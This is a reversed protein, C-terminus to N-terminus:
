RRRGYLELDSNYESVLRRHEALLLNHSNVQQNFSDVANQDYQNLARRQAEIYASSTQIQSELQELRQKKANFQATMNHPIYYTNGSGTTSSPTPEQPTQYNPAPTTSRYPTPRPAPSPSDNKNIIAVVFCIAILTLFPHRLAFLLPQTVYRWPSPRSSKIHALDKELQATITPDHQVLPMACTIAAEATDFDSEENYAGVSLGRLAVAVIVCAKRYIEVPAERQIVALHTFPIGRLGMFKEKAKKTSAQVLAVAKELPQIFKAYSLNGEAIARNSALRESVEKSAKFGGAAQLASLFGTDDDTEKQYAVGANICTTVVSDSAHLFEESTLGYFLELVSVQPLTAEVLTKVASVGERKNAKFMECARDVAHDIRSRIPLIVLDLAKQWDALDGPGEKSIEILASASEIDHRMCDSLAMELAIKALATPLTARFNRLIALTLQPDNVARLRLSFFDWYDDQDALHRWRRYAERWTHSPNDELSPETAKIHFFVAINHAAAIDGTRERQLWLNLADHAKGKELSKLAEDQESPMWDSPWFWFYEFIFRPVPDRLVQLCDRVTDTDLVLDLAFPRMRGRASTGLEIELKIKEVHRALERPTADIPVSLNRFPSQRYLDATAFKLLPEFPRGASLQDSLSPADGLGSSSPSNDRERM